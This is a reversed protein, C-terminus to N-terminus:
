PLDSWFSISYSREIIGLVWFCEAWKSPPTRLYHRFEAERRLIETKPVALVRSVLSSFNDFEEIKKM